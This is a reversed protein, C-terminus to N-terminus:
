KFPNLDTPDTTKDDDTPMQIKGNMFDTLWQGLRKRSAEQEEASPYESV